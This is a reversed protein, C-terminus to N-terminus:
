GGLNARRHARGKGWAVPRDAKVIAVTGNIKKLVPSVTVYHIGTAVRLAQVERERPPPVVKEEPSRGPRDDWVDGVARNAGSRLTGHTKALQMKARMWRQM